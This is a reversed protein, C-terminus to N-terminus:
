DGLCSYLTVDNRDGGGQFKAVRPYPCVPRTWRVHGDKDRKTTPLVAPAVGHEVWQELATLPDYGTQDVGPGSQIGCHDVGPLMFLRVFDQTAERL